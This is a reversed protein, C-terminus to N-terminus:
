ELTAHGEDMVAEIQAAIERYTTINGNALSRAIVKQFNAVDEPVDATLWTNIDEILDEAQQKSLIGTDNDDHLNVSRMVDPLFTIPQGSHVLHMLFALSSTTYYRKGDDIPVTKFLDRRFLAALAHSYTPFWKNADLPDYSFVGNQLIPFEEIVQGRTSVTHTLGYIAQWSSTQMMKLRRELVAPNPLADDDDQFYVYPNIGQELGQGRLASVNRNLGPRAVCITVHPLAYVDHHEAVWNRLDNRHEADDYVFIFHHRCWSTPDAAAALLLDVARRISRRSVIVFDILDKRLSPQIDVM